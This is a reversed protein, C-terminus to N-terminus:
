SLLKTLVYDRYEQHPVSGLQYARFFFIEFLHEHGMEKAAMARNIAKWEDKILSAQTRALSLEKEKNGESKSIIDSIRTYNKQFEQKSQGNYRM